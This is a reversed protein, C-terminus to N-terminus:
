KRSTAPYARPADPNPKLRSAKTRPAISVAKNPRPRRAKSLDLAGTVDKGEDFNKDFNKTKM